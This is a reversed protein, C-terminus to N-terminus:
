ENKNEKEIIRKIAFCATEYDIKGQAFLNIITEREKSVKAKGGLSSFMSALENAKSESVKVDFPLGNEMIVKNLFMSFAQTTNIGLKTFIEESQKKVNPEIRIHMVESKNMYM